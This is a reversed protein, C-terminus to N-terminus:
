LPLVGSIAGCLLRKELCRLKELPHDIAIRVECRRVDSEGIRIQRRLTVEVLDRRLCQRLRAGGRRLRELEVVGHRLCECTERPNLEIRPLPVLRLLVEPFRDLEIRVIGLDM